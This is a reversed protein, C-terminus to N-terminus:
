PLYLLVSLSAVQLGNTSTGVGPLDEYELRVGVHGYRVQMGVGVAAAVGQATDNGAQVRTMRYTSIGGKLFVEFHESPLLFVADAAFAQVESREGLIGTSAATGFFDGEAALWPLPRLGILAKWSTASVDVSDSPLQPNFQAGFNGLSDHTIGAGFYFAMPEARATGMGLILLALCVLFRM